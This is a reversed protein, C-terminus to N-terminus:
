DARDEGQAALFAGMRKDEVLIHKNIWQLLFAPVREDIAMGTLMGVELESLKDLFIAHEAEHRERNPYGRARMLEDETAFHTDAYNRLNEFLVSLNGVNGREHAAIELFRNLITFLQKHQQDVIEVGVSHDPTWSIYSM